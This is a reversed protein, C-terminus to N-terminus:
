PTPAPMTSTSSLSRRARSASSRPSPPASAVITMHDHMAMEDDFGKKRDNAPSSGTTGELEVIIGAEGKFNELTWEAVRRGQDVFDSGLFAVYHEGARAVNPDVSRDVLFTPIGAARAKMVEPVLPKEERPSQDALAPNLPM